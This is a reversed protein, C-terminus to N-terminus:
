KMVTKCQTNYAIILMYNNDNNVMYFSYVNQRENVLNGGKVINRCRHHNQNLQLGTWWVRILQTTTLYTINTLRREQM